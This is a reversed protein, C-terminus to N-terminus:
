HIRQNTVTAAVAGEVDTKTIMKVYKAGRAARFTRCASDYGFKSVGASVQNEVQKMIGVM